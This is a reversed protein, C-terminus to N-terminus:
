SGATTKSQRNFENPDFADKSSRNPTPKAPTTNGPQLRPAEGLIQRLQRDLADIENMLPVDGGPFESANVQPVPKLGSAGPQVPVLQSNALLPQPVSGLTRVQNSPNENRAVASSVPNQVFKVWNELVSVLEKERAEIGPRPQIGHAKTALELLASNMSDDAAVFRLVSKMNKETLQRHDKRSLELLKFDNKSAYGHCAAQSCRNMLIPQIHQAFQAAVVPNAVLSEYSVTRVTAESPGEKSMSSTKSEATKAAAISTIPPLGLYQRFAPEALMKNKLDVALRQVHPSNPKLKKAAQYHDAAESLLSNALCWKALLYHDGHYGLHIKKLKFQYLGGLDPAIHQVQSLPLTVSSNEAIAIRISEGRPEVIGSLVRDTKKLLVAASYTASNSVSAESAKQPSQEQANAVFQPVLALTVLTMWMWRNSNRRPM